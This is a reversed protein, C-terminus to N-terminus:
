ELLHVSLAYESINVNKMRSGDYRKVAADAAAATAFPILLDGTIIESTM